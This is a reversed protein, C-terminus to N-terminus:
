GALRLIRALEPDMQELLFKRFIHGKKSGALFEPLTSRLANAAVLESPAANVNMTRLWSGFKKWVLASHNLCLHLLLGHAICGFSIHVAYAQMKTRIADRYESTKRHLYQDGAFRKLPVMSKMWFHYSYAGVIHLAQKFSVEIKQRYSYALIVKIPDMTLVTTSFICKGRTPHDVLVFRMMGRLPQWVLNIAYIGVEVSEGYINIATRTFLEPQLFFSALVVKRGYKRPRGKKREGSAEPPYFAVANNRVRTILHCGLGLLERIFKANCYYADAVVMIAQNTLNRVDAVLAAAKDNLTRKDRNSWVLGEHIQSILPVAAMCGAVGIVLLALCQLSHGMIYEAKSNNNSEQHLCKVAPMKRGEKSIKLGDLLLVTYGEVAVPTFLNLVLHIWRRQLEALKIGKSHINKLLSSYALERLGLARVISTVGFLDSRISIGAILLLSWLFTRQRSFTVSCHFARIKSCDRSSIKRQKFHHVGRSQRATAAEPTLRALPPPKAHEHM